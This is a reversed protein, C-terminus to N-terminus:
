KGSLRKCASEMAELLGSLDVHRIVESEVVDRGPMEVEFLGPGNEQNVLFVFKGDYYIEAVLDKYEPPSALLIEFGLGNLM